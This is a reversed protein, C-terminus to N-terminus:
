FRFVFSTAIRRMPSANTPFGFQSSTIVRDITTFTVHNLVNTATVRWDLNFRSNFRFTRTLSIDLSFTAPGRISNRGADGWLGPAPTVFAAPNAYSGPAQPGIPQGTLSPRIGVVGTGPVPVFALPTQPLGSGTNLQATVTWDKYLRGWLGDVLTGGTAGVGTTYQVDASVLHRQDFSSPGREAELDLWNQAVSLSGPAVSTNSLSAANDIAKAITYTMSASLGAHLRRRLVVQVAHRTSTGGSTLYTFGSPCDVCPAGAGPAVTNPLFAQTLNAGRDGFYAAVVTLSAPWDHQVTAQWSQLVAPKYHPDVAFTTRGLRSEPFPNALTLPTAPSNELSFATSFPPQQALLMGISQYVGLNRYVGYSAKIVLSSDLWPRWAIGLRPQFGRRDAHVLSKPYSTGTVAGEPNNGVVLAAASFDPAIDLNALRGHRELYPSEYEWRVGANLTLGPAIRYDDNVYADYTGGRVHSDLNGRAIASTTPIGLLFDAFADGTAAGTFSLTGRPDPHTLQGVFYLRADGGFTVNHNGKRRQTEVGFTHSRRTTLRHLGDTLGVFDPFVLTPPGWNLPDQANGSIGADGSVNSRNAFFPTLEAQSNVFQYSMRMSTRTSLRRGWAGTAEFASQRSSDLFDFLNVSDTVGRLFMISGTFQDRGKTQSVDLQFRDTTSETLLQREFNAGTSTMGTPEPYLALLSAAQPVIRDAPIANGPFPEGTLPDRIVAARGSLDGRREDLTPVLASRSNAANQVVHQYSVRTLPGSVNTFPIRAPGAVAVAMQWDTYQPIPVASAGFSYPPANWASDGFNGNFNGSYLPRGKPRNNGAARPQAFITAAGNVVSGNLIEVAQAREAPTAPSASGAPAVPWAAKMAGEGIVEAYPRLTLTIALDPGSPPVTVERSVTVFGRMEIKLTWPGPELDAFGFVGNDDSVTSVIRDGKTATIVAGPIPADAHVVRGTVSKPPGSEPRAQQGFGPTLAILVTIFSAFM